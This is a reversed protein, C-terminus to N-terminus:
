KLVYETLMVDSPNNENHSDKILIVYGIDSCNSIMDSSICLDPVELIIFDEKIDVNTLGCFHICIPTTHRSALILSKFKVKM